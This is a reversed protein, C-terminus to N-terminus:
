QCCRPKTAHRQQVATHKAFARILDRRVLAASCSWKGYIGREIYAAEASALSWRPSINKGGAHHNGPSALRRGSHRVTHRM